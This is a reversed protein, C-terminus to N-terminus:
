IRCVMVYTGRVKYILVKDGSKFTVDKNAPYHKTSGTSEGAFILSVGDSYVASVQAIEHVQRKGRESEIQREAQYDFM